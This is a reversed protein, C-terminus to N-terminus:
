HYPLWRQRYDTRNSHLGAATWVESGTIIRVESNGGFVLIGVLLVIAAVCLASRKMKGEQTGDM